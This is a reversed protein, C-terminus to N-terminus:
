VYQKAEGDRDFRWCMYRDSRPDFIDLTLNGAPDIDSAIIEYGDTEIRSIVQQHAPGTEHQKYTQM